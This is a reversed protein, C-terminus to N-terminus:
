DAVLFYDEMDTDDLIRIRKEGDCYWKVWGESQLESLSQSPKNRDIPAIELWMERVNLVYYAGDPSGTQVADDDPRAYIPSDKEITIRQSHLYKEWPILQYKSKEGPHIWYNHDRDSLHIEATQHTTDSNVWVFGYNEFNTSYRFPSFYDDGIGRSLLKWNENMRVVRVDEMKHVPSSSFLISDGPRIALSMIGTGMEKRYDARSIPCIPTNATGPAPHELSGPAPDSPNVSQAEKEAAGENESVESQCAWFMLSLVVTIFIKM